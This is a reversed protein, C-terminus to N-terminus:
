NESPVERFGKVILWVALVMEQLALPMYFGVELSSGSEIVGFLALVPAVIYPVAGVLGWGSLWRPVLRARWLLTYFMCAGIIFVITGVFGSGEAAVLANALRAFGASDTVAAGDASAATSASLPILLLMGIITIMYGVTELGSRFVIYGRALTAGHPRLIPYAIVPILALALGMTLIALVGVRLGTASDAVAQLANDASAVSSLAVVSTIGALTGVIYLIGVRRGAIRSPSPHTMTPYQCHRRGRCM